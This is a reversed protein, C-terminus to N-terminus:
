LVGTVGDQVSDAYVVESALAVVRCSAAEIFKLDSKTRNFPNDVLPMFSLECQALLNMYAPYELTPYFTKHPTQLADFFGTDRVVSFRLRDGVSAAVANLAAIYPPWDLE